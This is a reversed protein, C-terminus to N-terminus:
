FRIVEEMKEWFRGDLSVKLRFAPINKAMKCANTFLQERFEKQDGKDASRWFKECIQMASETMLVAAEGEGVPEVRDTKSQELLFIGSLPVSYQVNWTKESQQWMHDSWTPFPHGRYKKQKDVVVLIEDDCLPRWPDPLRRCCTSKGTDSSAALVFGRGDREVLGAHMPLGGKGISQQYIPHLALWMNMFEIEPGEDFLVECVVEPINNHCWLRVTHHYYYQLDDGYGYSCSESPIMHFMEDLVKPTNASECFILERSGNAVSEDLEMVAALKRALEFSHHDGRIAWSSGDRLSLCFARPDLMPAVNKRSLGKRVSQSRDLKNM